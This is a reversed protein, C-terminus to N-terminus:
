GITPHKPTDDVKSVRAGAHSTSEALQQRASRVITFAIVHHEACTLKSYQQLALTVGVGEMALIIAEFNFM